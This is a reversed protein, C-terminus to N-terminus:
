QICPNKYFSILVCSIIQSLLNSLNESKRPSIGENEWNNVECFYIVPSHSSFAHCNRTQKMVLDSPEKLMASPQLIYPNIHFNLTARTSFLSCISFFGFIGQFLIGYVQFHNTQNSLSFVGVYQPYSHPFSRATVVKKWKSREQGRLINRDDAIVTQHTLMCEYNYPFFTDLFDNRIIGIIQLHCCHLFALYKIGLIGYVQIFFVESVRIGLVEPRAQHLTKWAKCVRGLVRRLGKM